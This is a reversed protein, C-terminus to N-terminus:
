AAPALAYLLTEKLAAPLKAFAKDHGARAFVRDAWLWRRVATIADSLAMPGKGLWVVQKATLAVDTSCLYDDRHTGSRGRVHAWRVAVLGAGSKHWHGTGTVVGVQRRGGGYWAVRLRAPTTGAVVQEPRPPKAGKQRPRGNKKGAAAAPPEYLDARPHFRSVPTLRGRQRQAFSAVEHWGYGQDGAFAFQRGPSWRRLL